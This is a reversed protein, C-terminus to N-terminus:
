ESLTNTIRITFERQRSLNKDTDLDNLYITFLASKWIKSGRESVHVMEIWQNKTDLMNPFTNPISFSKLAVRSCNDLGQPVQVTMRSKTDGSKRNLTDVHVYKLSYRGTQIQEKNTQLQSKQWDPQQHSGLSNYKQTDRSVIKTHNKKL